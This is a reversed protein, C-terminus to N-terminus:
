HREAAEAVDILADALDRKGLGYAAATALHTNWIAQVGSSALMRAALKESSLLIMRAQTGDSSCASCSAGGAEPVDLM